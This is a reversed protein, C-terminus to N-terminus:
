APCGRGHGRCQEWQIYQNAVMDELMRNCARAYELQHQCMGAELQLHEKEHELQKQQKQNAELKGKITHHRMVEAELMQNGIHGISTNVVDLVPYDCDFMCLAVDRIAQMLEDDDYPTKHLEAHYDARNTTICGIIYPDSTMHVQIFWALMPHRDEATITFPIFDDGINHTFGAPPHIPQMERVPATHM